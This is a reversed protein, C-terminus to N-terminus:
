IPIGEKLVQRVIHGTIKKNTELQAKSLIIIDAPIRRKALQRRVMAKLHRCETNEYTNSTVVMLDFDSDETFDRRARSGFLFVSSEPFYENVLEKIILIADSQNAIVM